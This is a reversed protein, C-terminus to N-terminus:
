ILDFDVIKGAIVHNSRGDEDDSSHFLDVSVDDSLNSDDDFQTLGSFLDLASNQWVDGSRSM